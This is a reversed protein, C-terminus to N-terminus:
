LASVGSYAIRLLRTCFFQSKTSSRVKGEVEALPKAEHTLQVNSHCRGPTNLM